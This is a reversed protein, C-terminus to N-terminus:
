INVYRKKRPKKRVIKPNNPIEDERFLSNLSNRLVDQNHDVIDDNDTLGQGESRNTVNVGREAPVLQNRSSQPHRPKNKLGRRKHLLRRM